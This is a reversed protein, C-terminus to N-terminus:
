SKEEKLRKVLGKCWDTSNCQRLDKLLEKAADTRVCKEVNTIWEETLSVGQELYEKATIAQELWDADKAIIGATTKQDEAEKWLSLIEEGIEDLHKLQDQAAREEDRTIYHRAVNHVDGTRCEAIDHFVVMTCVEFPKEYGELKALVYAIQAARLSHDTVTEPHEVGALRWGEHEVKKLQGLEFFFNLIDKNTAM